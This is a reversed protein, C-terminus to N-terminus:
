IINKKVEALLKEKVSQIEEIKKNLEEAKKPDKEKVKNCISSLKNIAKELEAAYSAYYEVKSAPPLKILMAGGVITALVPIVTLLPVYAMTFAAGVAGGFYLIFGCIEQVLQKTKNAQAEPETMKKIKEFEAKVKDVNITKKGNEDKEYIDFTSESIGIVECQSESFIDRINNEITYDM